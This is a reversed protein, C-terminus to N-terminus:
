SCLAQELGQHFRQVIGDLDKREIWPGLSIRISSRRMTNPLGMAALVPSDSDKGSSCASGSSVALGCADLTRVLRRGSVPQGNHDNVLLSLHHPLRDEPDGCVILRQDRLLSDRLADRLDAIGHGSRALDAPPCCEIQDLAAAMGIALVVSETGSRLGGEQGGGSLLPKLGSRLSERTMLLGIGRPGGCKHASSSLLDVPLHKWSPLAQSLVQTADTHIVIGRTRCAEAVALLPQITGVEGQGWVLSVIQTPPALLQELLELRIRGLQDVPWETVEWGSMALLRAAGSVAPHEVSSIVLRGPSRSAALGHLALHISETAGSTFVVDRHDACLNSAIESRARELAESAKLGFGHLSSPNAWAQDQTEIMRQLVGPRLPATACADLYIM